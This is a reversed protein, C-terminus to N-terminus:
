FDRYLFPTLTSTNSFILIAALLLLVILLPLLGWRKEALLFKYFDKLM